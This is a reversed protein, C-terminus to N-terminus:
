SQAELRRYHVLAALAASVLRARAPDARSTLIVPVKAGMVIGALTAGALYELDKALINGSVLDPVLLIDADGAVASRIGKIEASEKSIANDFALPGDVLAGTIQGREAMKSLCAADVTSVIAPNVVEVASLIAAKPQAVELIHALDIANQLIAAKTGLDPAINIAADTILLLKPYTQIDTVFVHSLRRDTRLKALIPHLFADSHLHGKMLAKVEGALVMEVGKEAAAEASDAHIIHFNPCSGSDCGMKLLLSHIQQADGILIPDIISQNRAECAGRLVHEEAADVVAVPIDDLPAVDALLADFHAYPM